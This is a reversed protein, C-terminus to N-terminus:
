FATSAERAYARGASGDCWGRERNGRRARVYSKQVGVIIARLTPVDFSALVSKKHPCPLNNGMCLPIWDKASPPSTAM